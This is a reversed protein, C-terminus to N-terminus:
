FGYANFLEKIGITDSAPCNRLVNRKYDSVTTAGILQKYLFPMSYTFADKTGAIGNVDKQDRENNRDKLDWFLGGPMWSNIFRYNTTHSNHPIKKPNAKEPISTAFELTEIGYFDTMVLSSFEAWAEAFGFFQAQTADPELGNRYPDKYDARSVPVLTNNINKAEAKCVIKWFDKGGIIAHSWHSFEHFFLKQLNSYNRSNWVYFGIDCFPASLDAPSIDIASLSLRNMMITSGSGGSITPVWFKAQSIKMSDIGVFSNYEHVSNNIVAKVWASFTHSDGILITKNNNSKNLDEIKDELTNGYIKYQTNSHSILVDVGYVFSTTSTFNGASDTEVDCWKAFRRITIKKYKCPTKYVSSMPSKQILIKGSPIYNGSSSSLLTYGASEYALLEARWQEPTPVYLKELLDYKIKPIDKDSFAYAYYPKVFVDKSEKDMYYDGYKVIEYDLPIESVYLREGSSALLLQVEEITKPYLKVYMRNPILTDDNDLFKEKQMAIQMYKISYPNEVKDGIVTPIGAIADKKDPKSEKKSKSKCSVLLFVFCIFVPLIKKM